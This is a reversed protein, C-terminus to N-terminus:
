EGVLKLADEVTLIPHLKLFEESEAEEREVIIAAILEKYKEYPIRKVLKYNLLGAKVLPITKSQIECASFKQCIPPRDQDHILCGRYGYVGEVDAFICNGNVYNITDIRDDLSRKLEEWEELEFLASIDKGRRELGGIAKKIDYSDWGQGGCCEFCGEPCLDGKRALAYVDEM